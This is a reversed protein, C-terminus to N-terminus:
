KWKKWKSKEMFRKRIQQGAIGNSFADNSTSVIKAGAPIETEKGLIKVDPADPGKTKHQNGYLSRFLGGEPFTQLTEIIKARDLLMPVHVAYNKLPMGREMLFRVTRTMEESYKTPGGHRKEIERITEPLSGDHWGEPFNGAPELIFFDDNFLWFKETLNEKRAIRGILYRARAWKTEGYQSVAMRIDPEIGPVPDGCIVLRNLPFNKELTRLSHRLEADDKTRKYIYVVDFRGM